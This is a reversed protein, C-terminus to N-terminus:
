FKLVQICHKPNTKKAEHQCIKMNENTQPHCYSYRLPTSVM